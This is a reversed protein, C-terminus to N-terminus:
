FGYLKVRTQVFIISFVSNITKAIKDAVCAKRTLGNPGSNIAFRQGQDDSEDIFSRSGKEGIKSVTFKSFTKNFNEVRVCLEVYKRAIFHRLRRSRTTGPQHTKRITWRQADKATIIGGGFVGM